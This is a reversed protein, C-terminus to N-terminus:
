KEMHVAGGGFVPGLEAAWGAVAYRGSSANWCVPRGGFVDGPFLGDGAAAPGRGHERAALQIEGGRGFGRGADVGKAREADVGGIAVDIPVDFDEVGIRGRHVFM